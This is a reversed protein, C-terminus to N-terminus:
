EIEIKRRLPHGWRRAVSADCNGILDLSFIYANAFVNVAPQLASRIVSAAETDFAFGASIVKM